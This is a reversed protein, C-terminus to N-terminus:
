FKGNIKEMIKMISEQYEIKEHSVDLKLVKEEDVSKLWDHIFSELLEADEDSAINIRDRSALRESITKASASLAIILDPAPLVSRAFTHFRRCLDFDLDSLWNHALFLRTFGYFDLDLGGDMLITQETKRLQFEQEARLMLYDIQNALAYKSDAKFLKQYPREQHSEYAVTFNQIKCLAQILTTKGVGSAGVIVILKSM